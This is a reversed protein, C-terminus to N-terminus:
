GQHTGSSTEARYTGNLDFALVNIVPPGIAAM